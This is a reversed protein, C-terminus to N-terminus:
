KPEGRAGSSAQFDTRTINILCARLETPECSQGGRAGWPPYCVLQGRLIIISM